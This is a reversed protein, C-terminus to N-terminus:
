PSLRELVWTDGTRRYRFRDHLRDDRHQWFEFSEPELRYGGWFPPLPVEGGAYRAHLEDVREDLVDRSQIVESQRRSAWAGLQGGVPRTRFYAESEGESVRAIRGEARVQRGLSNWYLVIAARPNEELERAKRSEYNTHFVLGRRDCGKLLVMRASPSAEVSATALTMAEPLPVGAAEAEALWARFQTVPDADLDSETLPEAELDRM